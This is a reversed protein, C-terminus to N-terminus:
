NYNFLDPFAEEFNFNHKKLLNLIKENPFEKESLQYNNRFEIIKLLNEDPIIKVKFKIPEGYIKNNVCFDLIINYTGDTIENISPINLNIRKSEGKRISYLKYDNITLQSNKNPKLFMENERWDKNDINKINFIIEPKIRKSLNFEYVGNNQFECVFNYLSKNYRENSQNEMQNRKEVKAMQNNADNNKIQIPMSLLINNNNKKEEEKSDNIIEKTNQNQNNTNNNINNENKNKLNNNLIQKNDYSMKKSQTINNEFNQNINNNDKKGKLNENKNSKIYDDFNKILFLFYKNTEQTFPLYQIKNIDFQKKCINLNQFINYNLIKHNDKYEYTNLLLNMFNIELKIEELLKDFLSIIDEKKDNLNDIEKKLNDIDNKLNIKTDESYKLETLYIIEHNKHEDICYPCLNIKCNNCYSSFLYFHKQCLSDYKDISYLFHDKHNKFCDYCIFKNCNSCYMFEGNKDKQSIGCNNCLEKSISYNKYNNMYEKLEIKGEHKNECSYNIYFKNNEKIFSTLLCILNCKPCRTIDDFNFNSLTITKNKENTIEM